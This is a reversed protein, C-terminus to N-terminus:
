FFSFVSNYERSIKICQILFGQTNQFFDSQKDTSGLILTSMTLGSFVRSEPEFLCSRSTRRDKKLGSISSFTNRDKAFAHQTSNIKIKVSFVIVGTHQRHNGAIRPM